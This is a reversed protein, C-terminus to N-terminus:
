DDKLRKLFSNGVPQTERQKPKCTGGSQTRIRAMSSPMRSFTLTKTSLIVLNLCIGTRGSCLRSGQLRPILPTKKQHYDKMMSVGEKKDPTKQPPNAGIRGTMRHGECSAIEREWAFLSRLWVKATTIGGPLQTKRKLTVSHTKSPTFTHSFHHFTMPESPAPKPAQKSSRSHCIQCIRSFHDM